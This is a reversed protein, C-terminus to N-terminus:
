YPPQEWDVTRWRSGIGAHHMVARQPMENEEAPTVRIRIVLWAAAGGRASQTLVYRAVVNPYPITRPLKDRIRVQGDGGMGHGVVRSAPLHDNKPAVDWGFIRGDARGAATAPVCRGILGPHEFERLGPHVEAIHSGLGAAEGSREIVQERRDVTRHWSRDDIELRTRAKRRERNVFR